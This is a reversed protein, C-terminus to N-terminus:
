IEIVSLQRDPFVQPLLYERLWAEVDLKGTRQAKVLAPVVQANLWFVTSKTGHEKEITPLRDPSIEMPKWDPHSWGFSRGCMALVDDIGNQLVLLAASRAEKRKLTHEVRLLAARPHPANYRYVKAFRESSKSGIYVTHGSPSTREGGSKFRKVARQEAFVDPATDTAIDATIDIRTLREHIVGLLPMLVGQEELKSCGVGGIEFLIEERQTGAFISLAGDERQWHQAYPARGPLATFNHHDILMDILPSANEAAWERIHLALRTPLVEKMSGIHVTFSLYDIKPYM